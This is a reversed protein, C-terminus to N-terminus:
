MGGATSVPIRVQTREWSMTLVTGDDTSEFAITFQDVTDDLEVSPAEIMLVDLDPDYVDATFAGTVPDLMGTGDLGLQPSFHIAWADPGPVAFVSYTGAPLRDGGLLIPGTATIETAENAGLRWLAGFPVLYEAEGGGPGFIARGRMYPRGYTVKVYTDGMHTKAMGMPSPRRSPHLDQANAGESAILLATGALVAAYITHRFSYM